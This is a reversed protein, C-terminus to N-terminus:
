ISGNELLLFVSSLFPLIFLLLFCLKSLSCIYSHYQERLLTVLAFLCTYFLQCAATLPLDAM